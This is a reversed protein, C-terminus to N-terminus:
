FIARLAARYLSNERQLRYRSRREVEQRDLWSGALGESAKDPTEDVHLVSARGTQHFRSRWCEDMSVCIM